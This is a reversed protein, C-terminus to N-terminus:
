QGPFVALFNAQFIRFSSPIYRTPIPQTSQGNGQSTNATNWDPVGGRAGLSELVLKLDRATTTFEMCNVLRIRTSAFVINGAANDLRDAHAVTEDKWIANTVQLTSFLIHGAWCLQSSGLRMKAVDVSVCQPWM